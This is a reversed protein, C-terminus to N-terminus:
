RRSYVEGAVWPQNERRDERVKEHVPCRGRSEGGGMPQHERIDESVNKTGLVVDGARKSPYFVSGQDLVGEFGQAHILEFPQLEFAIGVRPAPLTQEYKTRLISPINSYNNTQYTNQQQQQQQQQPRIRM